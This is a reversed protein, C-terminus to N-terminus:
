YSCSCSPKGFASNCGFRKQSGSIEIIKVSDNEKEIKIVRGDSLHSSESILQTQIKKDQLYNNLDEEKPDFQLSEPTKALDPLGEKDISYLKTQYTFKKSPSPDKEIVLRYEKQQSDFFQVNRFELSTKQVQNSSLIKAELDNLNKASIGLCDFIVASTKEDLETSNNNDIATKQLDGNAFIVDEDISDETSLEGQTNTTSNTSISAENKIEFLKPYIVIAVLGLVVPLLIWFISKKM